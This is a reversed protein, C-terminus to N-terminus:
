LLRESSPARLRSKEQACRVEQIARRSRMKRRNPLDLIKAQRWVATASFGGVIAGLECAEMRHMGGEAGDQRFLLPTQPDGFCVEMRGRERALADRESVIRM